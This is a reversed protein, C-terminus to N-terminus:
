KMESVVTRIISTLERVVFKAETKDLKSPDITIENDGVKIFYKNGEQAFTIEEHKKM